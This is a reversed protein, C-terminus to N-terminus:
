NSDGNHSVKVASLQKKLEKNERELREIRESLTDMQEEAGASFEEIIKFVRWLRLVVVISGVEELIGKLCVDIIFGAIIVLADFCHFWSKFYRNGKDTRRLRTSIRYACYLRVTIRVGMCMCDIRGYIPLQFDLERDWSCGASGWTGQEIWNSQWM